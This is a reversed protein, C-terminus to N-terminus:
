FKYNMALTLYQGRQYSYIPNRREFKQIKGNLETDELIRFTPNLLEQAGFKIEIGNKLTKSVTLDLSHRPMEYQSPNELNGVAFIRPGAVNYLLSVQWKSKDDQYYVGANILYPSQGYMPRSKQIANATSVQIDGLQITEPNTVRSVIYSANLVLTLNQLFKGTANAFGKRMEAEVGYSQAKSAQLFRYTDIGSSALLQNEIPNRFHKYFVGFTITEAPSPYYEYRLDINNIRAITMLPNGQQVAELNPEYYAFPALERFEPRNISSSYAARLLSKNTANFTFNVSPLFSAIAKGGVQTEKGDKKTFLKQDNYELRTGVALSFKEAIAWFHSLYPAILLNSARYANDNGTGEALTLNNTGNVYQPSFLQEAPLTNIGAIGQGVPANPVETYSFFRSDFQRAKTETYIGARFKSGNEAEEKKDGIPLEYGVSGTFVYENLKSFFRSAERDNPSTPISMAFPEQTGTIKQSKYRRFDPERRNTFGFGALWKIAAGQENLTHKGSIQSSYISRQEYRLTKYLIDNTNVFDTATRDITELNGMQNFFNRFEIKNYRNFVFSWNNIASIRTNQAFTQDNFGFDLIVKDQAPLYTGIRHRTVNDVYQNTRSYALSTLNGVQINGLTFRRGMNFNLRLDPKVETNNLAWNNQLKNAFTAREAGSLGKFTQTNPMNTPLSRLGNDFGLFDTGSKQYAPAQNFTTGVRFGTGVGISTFNETPALKTYVKVIGGAFEGPLEGAGSKYILIRDIASSPLMDFSFARIDVESSPALADNLMVTNYRQALGRIMIFRDDFISVGAIRKVVQAADRDQGKQIQEAGIGVAVQEAMKIESIVALESMTERQAVLVIDGLTNADVKLYTNLITVKGAQIQVGDIKKTQYGLTAIVFTYTGAQINNIQFNGEVDTAAGISTNEIQITAGILAENATSDILQGKISGTQQAYAFNLTFVAVVTACLFFHYLFKRM